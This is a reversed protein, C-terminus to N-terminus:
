TGLSGLCFPPNDGIARCLRNFEVIVDIRGGYRSILGMEAFYMDFVKSEDVFLRYMEVFTEYCQCTFAASSLGNEDRGEAM